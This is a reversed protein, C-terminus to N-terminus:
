RRLPRHHLRPRCCSEGQGLPPPHPAGLTPAEPACPPPYSLPPALARCDQQPLRTRFRKSERRFGCSAQTRSTRPTESTQLPGIGLGCYPWCDGTPPAAEARSPMPVRTFRVPMKSPPARPERSARALCCTRSARFPVVFRARRSLPRAYDLVSGNDVLVVWSGRGFAGRVLRATGGGGGASVVANSNRWGIGRRTSDRGCSHYTSAPISM